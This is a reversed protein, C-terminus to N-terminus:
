GWSVTAANRKLSEAARHFILAQALHLARSESSGLLAVTTGARLGSAGSNGGDAAAVKVM